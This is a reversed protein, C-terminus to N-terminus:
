IITEIEKELNEFEEDTMEEEEYSIAQSENYTQKKVKRVGANEIRNNLVAITAPSSVVIGNDLFIATEAKDTGCANILTGARREAKISERAQYCRTSMMAVIRTACISVDDSVKIFKLPVTYAM